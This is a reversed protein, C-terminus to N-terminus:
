KDKDKKTLLDMTENVSKKSLDISQRKNIKLYVSQGSKKIAELLKKVREQRKIRDTLQLMAELTAIFTIGQWIMDVVDGKQIDARASDKTFDAQQNFEEKIFAAIATELELQQDPIRFQIESM